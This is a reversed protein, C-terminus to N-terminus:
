VKPRPKKKAASGGRPSDEGYNAAQEAAIMVEPDIWGLKTKQRIVMDLPVDGHEDHFAIIADAAHRLLGAPEMNKQAAIARLKNAAASNIRVQVLDDFKQAVCSQISFTIV